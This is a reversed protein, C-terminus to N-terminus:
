IHMLVNKINGKLKWFGYGKEPSICTVRGGRVSVCVCVCLCLVGRSIGWFPIGSMGRCEGARSVCVYVSESKYESEFVSM